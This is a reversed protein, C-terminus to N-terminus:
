REMRGTGAEELEELEEEEEEDKKRKWIIFFIFFVFIIVIVLIIWWICTSSSDTVIEGAVVEQWECTMVVDDSPMKFEEGSQYLVGDYDSRFGAFVYGDKQLDFSAIEVTSGSAIDVDSQITAGDSSYYLTFYSATAVEWVAVFNADQSSMTFESGVAYFEGTRSNEWGALVYGDKTIDTPLTITSNKDPTYSEASGTGGNLDFSVDFSLSGGGSSSSTTTTTAVVENDYFAVGYLSFKSAKVLLTAGNDILEIYEGYDNATTTLTDVEGEHYRYVVYNDMGQYSAAIPIYFTLYTNDDIVTTDYSENLDVLATFSGSNSDLQEIDISYFVKLNNAEIGAESALTTIEAYEIQDDGYIDASSISINISNEKDTEILDNVGSVTIAGVGSAIELTTNQLTDSITFDQDPVAEGSVEVFSSIVNNM